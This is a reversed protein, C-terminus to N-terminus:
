AVAGTLAMEESDTAPALKDIVDTLHGPRTASHFMRLTLMARLRPELVDRRRVSRLVLVMLRGHGHVVMRNYAQSFQFLCSPSTLYDPSLIILASVSDQLRKTAEDMEVRGPLCDRRPWYCTLSRKELAQLLVERVWATDTDSDIASSIFVDYRPPHLLSQYLKHQKGHPTLHRALVLVEHRFMALLTGALLLVMALSILSLHYHSVDPPNMNCGLDDQTANMMRVARGDGTTCSVRSSESSTALQIWAPFWALDCTCELTHLDMLLADPSVAQLTPPLSRLANHRVDLHKVNKLLRPAGEDIRKLSNHSLDVHLARSLYDRPPLRQLSNGSMELTLRGDPMVHPLQKLGRASCNVYIDHHHPRDQCECAPPCHKTVNCVLEDLPVRYVLVGKFKPPSACTVQFYDREIVSLFEEAFSVIDYFKCDCHFPNNRFDFGWKMFKVMQMLNKIGYQGLDASPSEVFRNYSFSVFGPGYEESFNVTWHRQNTFKAIRNHSFYFVCFPYRLALAWSGEVTVLLNYKISFVNLETLNAHFAHPHIYSIHNHDLYVDRLSTLGLFADRPVSTLANYSLDLLGLRPLCALSRFETLSNMSLIVARTTNFDCYNHPFDTLCSHKHDLRLGTCSSGDDTDNKGTDIIFAKDPRSCNVVVHLPHLQESDFYFCCGSGPTCKFPDGCECQMCERNQYGTVCLVATLLM